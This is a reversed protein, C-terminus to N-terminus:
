SISLMSLYHKLVGTLKNKSYNNIITLNYSFNNPFTAYNKNKTIYKILEFHLISNGFFLSISNHNLLFKTEEFYKTLNIRLPMRTQKRHFIKIKAM